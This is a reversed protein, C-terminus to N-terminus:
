RHRDGSMYAEGKDTLVWQDDDFRALGKLWLTTHMSAPVPRHNQINILARIEGVGLEESGAQNALKHGIPRKLASIPVKHKLSESVSSLDTTVKTCFGQASRISPKEDEAAAEAWTHSFQGTDAVWLRDPWPAKAARFIINSALVTSIKEVTKCSDQCFLKNDLDVHLTMTFPLAHAQADPGNLASIKGECKLDYGPQFAPLAAAPSVLLFSIFGAPALAMTAHNLAIRIIAAFAKQLHKCSTSFM